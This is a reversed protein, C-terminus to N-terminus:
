SGLDTKVAEKDRSRNITYIYTALPTGAGGLMLFYGTNNKNLIVLVAGIVVITLLLIFGLIVGLKETFTNSGIVKSELDHRHRMQSEAM